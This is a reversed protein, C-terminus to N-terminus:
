DRPVGAGSLDTITVILHGADGYPVTPLRPGIRLDGMQLHKDDDDPILGWGVAYPTRATVRGPGFGDIAAKITPYLNMRDRVPAPGRFRAEFDMRVYTLGTPLQALGAASYAGFRWQRTLHAIALRGGVSRSNGRNSTMWRCPAPITVTWLTANDDSM